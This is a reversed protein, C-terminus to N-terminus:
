SSETSFPYFVQDNENEHESTDFREAKYGSDDNSTHNIYYFDKAPCETVHDDYAEVGTVDLDDDLVDPYSCSLEPEHFELNGRSLNLREWACDWYLDDTISAVSSSMSRIRTAKEIEQEMVGLIIDCLGSPNGAFIDHGAGQVMYVEVYSTPRLHYVEYGTKHDMCSCSGYIFSVPVEPDLDRMRLTLPSVSWFYLLDLKRFATVGTPKLINCYYLYQNTEESSKVQKPAVKVKALKPPSLSTNPTVSNRVGTPATVKHQSVFFTMLLNGVKRPLNRLFFLPDLLNLIFNCMRIWRPVSAIYPEKDFYSLSFRRKEVIGMPLESYGWPEVLILHRVREPHRIAYLTAIYGGFGHGLLVFNELGVADRWEELFNAFQYEIDRRNGFFPTRTSRGFGPLDLAYVPLKRSLSDFCPAWVGLGAGLGHLMVLTPTCKSFGRDFKLTRIEVNSSIPIFQSMCSTKTFKQLVFLETDRLLEETRKFVLSLMWSFLNGMDSSRLARNTRRGRGSGPTPVRTRVRTYHQPRREHKNLNSSSADDSQFRQRKGQGEGIVSM